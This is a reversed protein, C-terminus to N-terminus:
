PDQGYVTEADYDGQRLRVVRGARLDIAPFLEM